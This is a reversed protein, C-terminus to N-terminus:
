EMGHRLAAAAAFPGLVASMLTLQVAQEWAEPPVSQFTGPPPGGANVVLIDLGGLKEVAARVLDERHGEKSMDKASWGMAGISRGTAEIANPDRSAIYVRAGEAILAEACARGLGKSSATVLAKRDTLGFDM